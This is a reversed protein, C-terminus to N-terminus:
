VWRGRRRVDVSKMARTESRVPKSARRPGSDANPCLPRIPKLKEAARPLLRPLSSSRVCTQRSNSLPTAPIPSATNTPTPSMSISRRASTPREESPPRGMGMGLRSKPRQLPPFPLYPPSPIPNSPSICPYTDSPTHPNPSTRVTSFSTSRRTPRPLATAHSTSPSSPPYLQPSPPSLSTGPVSKSPRTRPPTSSTPSSSTSSGPSRAPYSPTRIRKAECSIQATVRVSINPGTEVGPGLLSEADLSPLIGDVTVQDEEECEPITCLVHLPDTRWTWLIEKLMKDSVSGENDGYEAPEDLEEEEEEESPYLEPWACAYGLTSRRASLGVIGLGGLPVVGSTCDKGPVSIGLGVSAPGTGDCTYTYSEPPTSFSRLDLLSDPHQSPFVRITPLIPRRPPLPVSFPLDESSSSPTSTSTSTDSVLSINFSSASIDIDIEQQAENSYVQSDAAPYSTPTTAITTSSDFSLLPVAAPSKFNPNSNLRDLFSTPPIPRSNSTSIHSHRSPENQSHNSNPLSPVLSSLIDVIHMFSM